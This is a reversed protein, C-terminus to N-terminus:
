RPVVRLITTFVLVGTHAAAVSVALWSPNLIATYYPLPLLVALVLPVTWSQRRPIM